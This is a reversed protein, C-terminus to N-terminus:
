EGDDNGGTLEATIKRGIPNPTNGDKDELTITAKIDLGKCLRVLMPLSISDKNFLRKDNNFNAGFRMDYKDIDIHKECVAQKLATMAPTDNEGPKPQFINDPNTIIDTESKEMKGVGDLYDEIKSMTRMDIASKNGSMTYQSFDDSDQKPLRAFAFMQDPKISIGYSSKDAETRIPLIYEDNIVVAPRDGQYTDAFQRYREMDTLSFLQNNITAKGFIATNSFPNYTNPLEYNPMTVNEIM